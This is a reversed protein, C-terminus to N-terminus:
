FTASGWYATPSVDVTLTVNPFVTGASELIGDADYHVGEVYFEDASFGGGGGWTATIATIDSIDIGTIMNWTTTGSPGDPRQPKITLASVRTLPEGYNDVIHQAFLKTAELQTTSGATDQAGTALNDASWTRLGYLATSTNTVYQGAIDANTHLGSADQPLAIASTYINTDDRTVTLPPSLPVVTSVNAAVAIADGVHWRTFDWNTGSATTDPDQRAKRGHFTFAGSANVFVNSAAPHEGDAADFIVSLAQTRPAYRTEQLYVNGTFIQRLVTGSPWGAQDLVTGIRHQVASTSDDQPFVIYGNEVSGGWTGDPAMEAAALIGMGDVLDIRVNAISENLMPEWSISQVFGRFLTSWASTVPHQLAIAAQKLPEIRQYFAGGTNTPDFDGTTDIIYISAVGPATHDLEYSRGRDITWKQVIYDADLRVWTPDEVLTDDDCAVCVGQPAAM